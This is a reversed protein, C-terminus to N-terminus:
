VSISQHAENGGPIRPRNSIVWLVNKVANRHQNIRRKVIRCHASRSGSESQHSPFYIVTVNRSINTTAAWSAASSRFTM